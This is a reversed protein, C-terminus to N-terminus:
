LFLRHLFEPQSFRAASHDATRHDIRALYTRRCEGRCHRDLLSHFRVRVLRRRSRRGPCLDCHRPSRFYFRPGLRRDTRPAEFQSPRYRCVALGRRCRYARARYQGLVALALLFEPYDVRGFDAGPGSRPDRGLQRGGIRQRASAGASFSLRRRVRDPDHGRCLFGQFSRFVVMSWIDWAGACAASMITFGLAAATFLWRTSFIGALWGAILIAITEAILFSTQVWSIEDISASLGSQIEGISSIVIMIDLVALFLGVVMAVFGIIVRSSVQEPVALGAVNADTM